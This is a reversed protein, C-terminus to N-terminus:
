KWSLGFLVMRGPEGYGYAQEYHSNALNEVRATLSLHPTLELRGTAYAIMFPQIVGAGDQAQDQGRFGVEAQAGHGAWAQGHWSLSGSGSDRPIRRLQVPGTGDVGEIHAFSARLVFGQGLQRQGSFELGASRAHSLNLYGVPYLYDIQDTINLGFLTVRARTAGDAAAWDLGADEGLAQEPKLGKPPGAVTCELCPYTIEYVSPAKFGQGASGLLTFGGGLRWAAGGRATTQGGFGQFQDQRVSVTLNLRDDPSWRGIAFAGDDNRSVLGDGTNEAARKHEAGFQLGWTQTQRTASWRLVQQDGRASFPFQGFYGRDIGM